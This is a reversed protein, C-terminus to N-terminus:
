ILTAPLPNGRARTLLEKEPTGSLRAPTARRLPEGGARLPGAALVAPSSGRCSGARSQGSVPFLIAQRARQEAKSREKTKKYYGKNELIIPPSFIFRFIKTQSRMIPTPSM